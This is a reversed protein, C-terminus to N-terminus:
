GPSHQQAIERMCHDLRNVVVPLLLVGAVEGDARSGLSAVEGKAEIEAADETVLATAHEM